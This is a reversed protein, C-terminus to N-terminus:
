RFHGDFRPFGVRWTSARTLRVGLGVALPALANHMARVHGRLAPGALGHKLAFRLIQDIDQELLQITWNRRITRDEGGRAGTGISHSTEAKLELFKKPDGLHSAPPTGISLEFQDTNIWSTKGPSDEDEETVAHIQAYM